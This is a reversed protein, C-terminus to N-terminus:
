TSGNVDVGLQTRELRFGLLGDRGTTMTKLIKSFVFFFLCAKDEAFVGVNKLLREIKYANM